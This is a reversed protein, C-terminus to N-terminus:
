RQAQLVYSDYFTLSSVCIKHEAREMNIHGNRQTHTHTQRDWAHIPETHLELSAPDSSSGEVVSLYLSWCVQRSSLWGRVYSPSCHRCLSTFTVVTTLTWARVTKVTYEFQESASALSYILLLILLPMLISSFSTLSSLWWWSFLAFKATEKKKKSITWHNTKCM